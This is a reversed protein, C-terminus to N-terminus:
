GQKSHVCSRPRLGLYQTGFARIFRLPKPDRVPWPCLGQPGQPPDLTAFGGLRFLNIVNLFREPRDGPVEFRVVKIWYISFFFFVINFM